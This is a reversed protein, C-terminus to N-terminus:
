EWSLAGRKLLYFWGLALVGVFVAMAAFGGIGVSQAAQAHFWLAWPFLFAVEVDFVLFSMATLYFKVEVHSRADGCTSCPQVGCEYPALKVPNPKKPGLLASITMFALPISAALFITVIFPFAKELLVLDL